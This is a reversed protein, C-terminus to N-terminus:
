VFRIAIVWRAGGHLAQQLAIASSRRSPKRYAGDDDIGHFGAAESIPLPGNDAFAGNFYHAKCEHIVSVYNMCIVVWIDGRLLENLFGLKSQIM